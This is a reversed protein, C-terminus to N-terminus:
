RRKTERFILQVLHVALVFQMEVTRPAVRGHPFNRRQGNEVLQARALHHLSLAAEGEINEIGAGLGLKPGFDLPQAFQIAQAKGIEAGPPAMAKQPLAPADLRDLLAQPRGEGAGGIDQQRHVVIQFRDAGIRM